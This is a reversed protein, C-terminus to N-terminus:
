PDTLTLSTITPPVLFRIRPAQGREYGVGRSVYIRRGALDHYGGAAVHRPVRSATFPPGFFPVRVQGGHTHGAVVLDVRSHGGLSLVADPAHTLLIRIDGSGPASELQRITDRAQPTDCSWELGGITLRRDGATTRVIENVLLRVETGEIAREVQGPRDVNGLVCYVGGPASLRSLLDRLAPLEREFGDATGQFLDGPLLIVDSALDMMRQVASREYDTVHATQIDALVGIRLTGCGDRELPVGVRATELQLRFPEIHTAYVGVPALAICAWALVRVPGTVRRLPSGSPNRRGALLVAVGALPLLIFVDLYVLHILGFLNVGLLHLVPLKAIFVASTVATTMLGRGLTISPARGDTGSRPWPAFLVLGAASADVATSTLLLLTFGASPM